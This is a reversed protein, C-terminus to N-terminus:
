GMLRDFEEATVAPHTSFSVGLYKGLAASAKMAAGTDALEVILVLDTKGLLAYAGKLQGGMQKIMEATKETRKPNIGKVGEMSYKGFMFFTAM